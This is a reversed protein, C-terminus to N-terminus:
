RLGELAKTPRGNDFCGKDYGGNYGAPAEPEWYFIGEFRGQAWGNDKLYKLLDYARDPENYPMGVECIMVPKGYRATLTAANAICADAYSRWDSAPWPYLSMGIMDYRADHAKLIDFLWTFREENNGNDVHVIVEAEPFVSKSAEYGATILSAFNAPHETANGLPFLMGHPTENGIQVWKPTINEAKLRGLVDGVHAAVARQLGEIDLSAWEAPADQQGPDAWTDRFHFDIMLDLGLAAARRAKVLVDETGNWGDSPNLWVRLRIANIGCDDRLLQMCEMEEGSRTHFTHGEQELQTLWSVDAGAVFDRETSAPPASPVVPSAQPEDNGCSAFLSVACTALAVLALSFGKIIKM